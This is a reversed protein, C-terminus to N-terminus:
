KMSFENYNSTLNSHARIVWSETEQKVLQECNLPIKFHNYCVPYHKKLYKNYEKKICALTASTVVCHNTWEESFNEVFYCSSPVKVIGTKFIQKAYMSPNKQIKSKDFSKNLDSSIVFANYGKLHLTFIGGVAGRSFLTPADYHWDPSKSTGHKIHRGYNIQVSNFYMSYNVNNNRIINILRSSITFLENLFIRMDPFKYFDIGGKSGCVHRTERIGNTKDRVQFLKGIYCKSLQKSKYSNNINTANYLLVTGNKKYQYFGDLSLEHHYVFDRNPYSEKKKTYINFKDRKLCHKIYKSYQLAREVLSHHLTNSAASLGINDNGDFLKIYKSIICMKKNVKEDIYKTEPTESDSLYITTYKEKKKTLKKDYAQKILKGYNNFIDTGYNEIKRQKTIIKTDVKTDVEFWGYENKNLITDLKARIIDPINFYWMHNNKYLGLVLTEGYKNLVYTKLVYYNKYYKYNSINKNSYKCLACVLKVGFHWICGFLKCRKCVIM